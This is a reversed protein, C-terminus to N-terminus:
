QFRYVDAPSLKKIIEISGLALGLGAIGGLLSL